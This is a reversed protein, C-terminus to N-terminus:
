AHAECACPRGRLFLSRESRDPGAAAHQHSRPPRHLIRPQACRLHCPESLARAACSPTSPAATATRAKARWGTITVTPCTGFAKPSIRSFARATWRRASCAARRVLAIDRVMEAEVRFRPGRALLKNDPDRAVLEKSVQSSQRYTASTVILRQIEEHELGSAYIRHGALRATGSADAPRGPHRFRGSTEVIGHGFIAEWFHNVAVRATLPNDDSVLWEALGLRNPMADHPMPGLASPTNAYVVDGKSMFSGRERIYTAPRAYGPKEELIMATAIGLKKVSKELDAMQKRSADLLPSVSRYATSLSKQQDPKRQASSVALLPRLQAPIRAIFEPDPSATVSLRFRGMNRTAHKMEHKLTVTLIAGGSFGFPEQPVLVAQRRPVGPHTADIAWGHLNNDKKMLGSIDYGDQSEDAKASKWVVAQRQGPASVPAVQVDVDSLFFNGEADRGPGGHPLSQDGLVEIRLGSIKQLSTRATLTYTDAKPNKGSALVSVDPLVKLTAGGASQSQDPRM